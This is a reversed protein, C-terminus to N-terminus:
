HVRRARHADREVAGEVERLIGGQREVRQDREADLAHEGRSLRLIRINPNRDDRSQDLPRGPADGHEGPSAYILVVSGPDNAVGPHALDMDAAAAGHLTGHGEPPGPHEHALAVLGVLIPPDVGVGGPHPRDHRRRSPSSVPAANATVRAGPGETAPPSRPAARLRLLAIGRDPIGADRRGLATEKSRPGPLRLQPARRADLPLAARRPGRLRHAPREGSRPLAPESGPRRVDGAMRAPAGGTRPPRLLLRRRPLDARGGPGAGVGGWGGLVGGLRASSRRRPFRAGRSAPRPTSGRRAEMPWTFRSARGATSNGSIWRWRRSGGATGHGSGAWRRPRPSAVRM